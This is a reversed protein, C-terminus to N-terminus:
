GDLASIFARTVLDVAISRDRAAAVSALAVGPSHLTWWSGQVMLVMLQGHLSTIPVHRDAAVQEATASLLVWPLQRPRDHFLLDRRHKEVFRTGEAFVGSVAGQLAPAHALAAFDAPEPLVTALAERVTRAHDAGSQVPADPAATHLRAEVDVIDRWWATWQEAAAARDAGPLAGSRDPVTGDLRPPLDDSDTVPLNLADRVYLALHASAPVNESFRWSTGDSERM